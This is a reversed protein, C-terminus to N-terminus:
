RDDNQQPRAQHAITNSLNFRLSQSAQSLCDDEKLPAIPKQYPIAEPTSYSRLSTRPAFKSPVM